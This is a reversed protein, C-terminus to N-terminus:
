GGLQAIALYTGVGLSAATLVFAFLMLLGDRVLLAIGFALIAAMPATSAFPLLELPPVTAALLICCIAAARTGGRKTLADLRDTTHRDIWDTVHRLKKTAGHIKDTSVARREIFGPLWLQKRGILMQVAVVAVIFALFSPVGPVGGLPSIEILAPVILFPAYSQSGFGNVVDGISIKGKPSDDDKDKQRDAEEDLKDLVASAGEPDDNKAM